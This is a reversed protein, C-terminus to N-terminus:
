IDNKMVKEVTNLIDNNDFFSDDVYVMNSTKSLVTETLAKSFM